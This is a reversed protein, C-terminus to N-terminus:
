RRLIVEGALEGTYQGDDITLIGNVLLFKVGESYLDPDEFTAHDRITTPDFVLIDARYDQKIWGRDEFGMISAPLSTVKRVFSPLTIVGRDLVYRRLVRPFTGYSRPHVRAGPGSGDTAPAIYEKGMYHELDSEQMSHSRIRASNELQLYRATEFLSEQRLESVEAMTMGEYAPNPEFRTIFMRDAGGRALIEHYVDKEVQQAFETGGAIRERLFDRRAQGQLERGM